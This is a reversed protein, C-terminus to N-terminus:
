LSIKVEANMGPLVKDSANKLSIKVAVKQAVKTYSGNSSQQPLVSFLSNTAFGIEEVEGDFLTNGDGDVKIEVSDGVEIDKLDKEQINATIYLHEMDAAVALAQGAQVMQHPYAENQIVTGNMYSSVSVSSEGAAVKGVSANESVNKGEELNWEALMGSAPATVQMMDASVVADNTTVYNENQYYYYAGAAILAFVALIGIINTLILRGKSM